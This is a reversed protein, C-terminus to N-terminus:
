FSCSAVSPSLIKELERIQRVIEEMREGSIHNITHDSDKDMVYVMLKKMEPDMKFQLSSFSSLHDVIDGVLMELDAKDPVEERHVVRNDDNSGIAQAARNLSSIAIPQTGTPTDTWHDLNKM